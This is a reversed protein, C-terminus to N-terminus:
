IYTSICVNISDGVKSAIRAAEGVKSAIRSSAVDPARTLEELNTDLGYLLVEQLMGGREVVCLKHCM